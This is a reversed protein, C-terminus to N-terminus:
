ELVLRIREGQKFKAAPNLTVIKEIRDEGRYFRAAITQLSDGEAVTYYWHKRGGERVLITGYIEEALRRDELIKIQVGEGITYIGLHPNCELLVPYYRGEGFAREAIGWLTDTEHASYTRFDTDRCPDGMREEGKVTADSEPPPWDEAGEGRGEAAAEGGTERQLPVPDPPISRGEDPRAGADDFREPTEEIGHMLRAFRVGLDHLRAEIEKMRYTQYGILLGVLCFGLVLWAALRRSRGAGSREAGAEDPISDLVHFCTLDADCQPCRITEAPISSLGCVPCSPEPAM